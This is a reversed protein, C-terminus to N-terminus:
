GLRRRALLLRIGLMLCAAALLWACLVLLRLTLTMAQAAALFSMPALFGLGTPVLAVFTPWSRRSRSILLAAAFQPAAALLSFAILGVGGPRSVVWAM